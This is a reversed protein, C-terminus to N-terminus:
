ETRGDRYFVDRCPGCYANDVGDVRRVRWHAKKLVRVAASRGPAEFVAKAGCRVCWAHLVYRGALM